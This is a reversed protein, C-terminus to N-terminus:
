DGMLSSTSYPLFPGNPARVVRWIPEQPALRYEHPQSAGHGMHLPSISTGSQFDHRPPRAARGGAGRGVSRHCGGAESPPHGLLGLDLLLNARDGRERKARSVRRHTHSDTAHKGINSESYDIDLNYLGQREM